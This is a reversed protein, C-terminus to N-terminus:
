RAADSGRWGGSFALGGLLGLQGDTLKLDRGIENGLVNIVQRDLINLTFVAMLLWAMLWPRASHVAREPALGGESPADAEQRSEVYLGSV